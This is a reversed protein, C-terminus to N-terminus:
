KLLFHVGTEQRGRFDGLQLSTTQDDSDKGFVGTTVSGLDLLDDCVVFPLLAELHSVNVIAVAVLHLGALQVGPLREQLHHWGLSDAALELIEFHENFGDLRARFHCLVKFVRHFMDTRELHSDLLDLTASFM